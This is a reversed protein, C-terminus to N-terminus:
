ASPEMPRLPGRALAALLIARAARRHEAVGQASSWLLAHLRADRARAYATRRLAADRLKRALRFVHGAEQAAHRRLAHRAEDSLGPRQAAQLLHMVVAFYGDIRRMRSADSAERMLSRPTTRYAYLERDLWGVRKAALLVDCTWIVDEHVVGEPFPTARALEARCAMLWLYQLFEGEGVRRAIWEEGSVADAPKPLRYFPERDPEGRSDVRRGNFCVVDLRDRELAALVAHGLSPELRDDADAFGIYEGRAAAIAANRARSPGGNPQHFIRARPEQAAFARLMEASADTSGDDVLVFEMEALTQARLDALMPALDDAANYVPVVLSLRPAAAVL